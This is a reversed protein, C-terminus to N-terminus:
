PRTITVTYEAKAGSQATVVVKVAIGQGNALVFTKSLKKGDVTVGTLSNVAKASITVKNKDAPLTVTFDATGPSFAPSLPFGPSNTKIFKLVTSTSKARTVTVTYTKKAGSQAKVTFKLTKSQGNKLTIKKSAPSAKALPTQVAAKITTSATNEDLALTYNTVGADFAANFQGVTATLAALNNNTSKGRTVSFTYTKSKKGYKVKVSVKATKGNALNITYSSVAKGNITMTAGAYDKIPTLTVSPQNENLLIKYSTVTKSFGRSLAGASMDIGFLYPSPDPSTVTLVNINEYGFADKAYITYKGPGPIGFSGNFPTGSAAIDPISCEGAKYKLDTIGSPDSATVSVAYSAGNRQWSVSLAPGSNDIVASVASDPAAANNSMEAADLAFASSLTNANESFTYMGPASYATAYPVSSGDRKVSVDSAQAGLCLSDNTFALPTNDANGPPIIETVGIWRSEYYYLDAGSSSKQNSKIRYRLLYIGPQLTNVSGYLTIKNTLNGETENSASVGDFPNFTGGVLVSRDDLGSFVSTVSFTPFKYGNCEFYYQVDISDEKWIVIRFGYDCQQFNAPVTWDCVYKGSANKVLDVSCGFGYPRDIPMLYLYAYDKIVSGNDKIDVEIHVIDGSKASNKSLIINDITPPHANYNPNVVVFSKRWEDPLPITIEGGYHSYVTVNGYVDSVTFFSITYIGPETKESTQFSGTLTDPREESPYLAVPNGVQRGEPDSLIIAASSIENEDTANITFNISEGATISTKDISVSSAQPGSFDSRTTNTVGATVMDLKFDDQSAATYWGRNNTQDMIIIDSIYYTGTALNNNVPISFKMTYRCNAEDEATTIDIGMEMNIYQTNSGDVNRLRVGSRTNELGSEDFATVIVTVDEDSVYSSKSFQYSLLKPPTVDSAALAAPACSFVLLICLIVSLLRKRM